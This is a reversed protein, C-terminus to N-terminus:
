GALGSCAAPDVVHLHCRADGGVAEAFARLVAAPLDEPSDAVLVARFRNFGGADREERGAEAMRRVSAAPDPLRAVRALYVLLRGGVALRLDYPREATFGESRDTQISQFVSEPCGCGLRAQVFDRVGAHGSPLNCPLPKSPM